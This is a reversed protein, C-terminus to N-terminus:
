SCVFIIGRPLVKYCQNNLLKLCEYLGNHPLRYDTLDDRAKGERHVPHPCEAQIGSIKQDQGNDPSGGQDVRHRVCCAPLM